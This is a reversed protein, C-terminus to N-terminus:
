RMIDTLKLHLFGAFWKEPIKMKLVLDNYKAILNSIVEEKLDAAAKTRPAEEFLMDVTVRLKNIM